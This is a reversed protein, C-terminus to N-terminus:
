HGVIYIEETANSRANTRHTEFLLDSQGRKDKDSKEPSFNLMKSTPSPKHDPDSKPLRQVWEHRDMIESKLGADTM